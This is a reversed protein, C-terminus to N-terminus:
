SNESGQSSFECGGGGICQQLVREVLCLPPPCALALMGISELTTTWADASPTRQASSETGPEEWGQAERVM